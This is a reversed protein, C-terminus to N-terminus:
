CGHRLPSSCAPRLRTRRPYRAFTGMYADYNGNPEGTGVYLEYAIASAGFRVAVAGVSLSDAEASGGFLSPSVIYDDLPAWNAGGDASFWVGGNAPGAYVRTGGPGATISTMRGAEVIGWPTSVVSPGIPTWNVSGAGGPTGAPLTGAEQELRHRRRSAELYIERLLQGKEDRRSQHFWDWREQPSGELERGQPSRARRNLAIDTERNESVFTM